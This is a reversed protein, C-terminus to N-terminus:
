RREYNIGETYECKKPSIPIGNLTPVFYDVDYEKLCFGGILPSIRKRKFYKCLSCIM